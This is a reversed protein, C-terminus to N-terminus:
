KVAVIADIDVLTGSSAGTKSGLVNVRVTHNGQTLGNKSWVIQALQSCPATQGAPCAAYLDVTEAAGGDVSVSIRGRNSGRTAVLAFSGGQFSFSIPKPMVAFAGATSSQHVSSNYAGIVKQGSWSGNYSMSGNDDTPGISFKPGISWAGCNGTSDCAHVQFQYTTTGTGMALNVTASTATGVPQVDTNAYQGGNTSVQLQAGAYDGTVAWNVTLPMRTNALSPDLTLKGAEISPSPARTISVGSNAAGQGTLPVSLNPLNAFGGMFNLSATRVGTVSPAFQLTVVCTAGVALTQGTCAGANLKFDKWNAGALYVASVSVPVAGANQLTVSQTVGPTPSPTTVTQSDFDLSTPATSAQGSVELPAACPASPGGVVGDGDEFITLETAALPDRGLWVARSEANLARTMDAADLGTYTATWNTSSGDYTLAGDAAAGARLTRKGNLDFLDKNAVLRQEIQDLPLQKGAADQATGHIVITTADLQLPRQATVNSVTIQDAKGQATVLRILDGARLDPTVGTWCGGGPHNIEVLGDFGATKPDDSPTVPDSTSITNWVAKVPDFRLVSVTVPGESAAYGTSSVFDRAPFAIISRPAIPPDNAVVATASTSKASRNGASDVADVAYAYTGTVLNADSFTTTTGGVDAIKVGKRYIGYGTVGVDDTSTTWTLNVTKGHIDPLSATLGTPVTPAQTDAVATVNATAPASKPSRNTAADVADVTYTYPGVSLGTDTYTTAPAVVDAIKTSGRYVGYSVVGVDDSSASWTLTVQGTGAQPVLNAPATPATVDKQNVGGANSLASRNGWPSNFTPTPALQASPTGADVADVAFTHSGPAVNSVLYSSTRAGVNRIRAGDEYIGYGFVAVTDKAGSWSLQINSAGSQTLTLTPASPPSTDFPESPAFCVGASPGNVTGGGLPDASNEYITLELGALPQRGLWLARSEAGPFGNLGLIRDIDTQVLGTYTATWRVGTPDDADYALVGDKGAGGARIVRRGNFLFLDRNAILRSEVQDLPLPGGSNDMAVGHVQVVGDAAESSSAKSILVPREAVVNSTTSQDVTRISSDPNFAITRIIDGVRIDPTVGEWCGGGPHNVEVIGAFPEDPAARPDPQPIVTSTSIVVPETQSDLKRLVQVKVTDTALFGSNSVFDRSPFSIIQVPAVPPENVPTGPPLTALQVITTATAANSEPSRNGIADAADVTYTYTGPPVNADTYTIPAPASGDPNSVNFIPLGDRYVGYSTVGVNDTAATWTLNVTNSNTVNAVLNTPASPPILESGPPPPLKELPATCPAAPGAVIAAGVEYITGDVAALPDAGLWLIRSEAGLARTV